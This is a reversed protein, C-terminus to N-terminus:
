KQDNKPMLIFLLSLTGARLLCLRHVSGLLGETSIKPKVTNESVISERGARKLFCRVTRRAVPQANPSPWCM